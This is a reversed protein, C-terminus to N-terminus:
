SALTNKVLEILRPKDIPKLLFANAGASLARDRVDLMSFILVPIRNTEPDAKLQHLVKLGSMGPLIVDLIILGPHKERAEKVARRGDHVILVHYGEQELFYQELEATVPDKEAVMIMVAGEGTKPQGLFGEAELKRALLSHAERTRLHKSEIQDKLWRIREVDEGSYLRHGSKTRMPKILGYQKEWFRLTSVPVSTMRSVAEISYIGIDRDEPLTSGQERSGLEARRCVARLQRM